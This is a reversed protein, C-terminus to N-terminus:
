FYFLLNKKKIEEGHLSLIHKKNFNICHMKGEHLLCIKDLNAYNCAYMYIYKNIINKNPLSRKKKHESQIM